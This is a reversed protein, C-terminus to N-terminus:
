NPLYNDVTVGLNHAGLSQHEAVLGALTMM